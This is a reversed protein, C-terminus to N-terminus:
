RELLALARPLQRKCPCDDALRRLAGFKLSSHSGGDGAHGVIASVIGLGELDKKTEYVLDALRGIPVCVDTSWGRSNPVLSMASWLGNKRDQWLDKADKDSAAAEFSLGGNKKVIGEIIAANEKISAPSGQIKFFLSDKELYKRQSTGYTNTAHM